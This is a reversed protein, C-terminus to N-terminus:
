CDLSTDFSRLQNCESYHHLSDARHYGSGAPSDARLHWYACRRGHDVLEDMFGLQMDWIPSQAKLVGTFCKIVISKLAQACRQFGKTLIRSSSM